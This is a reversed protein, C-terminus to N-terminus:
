LKDVKPAFFNLVVLGGFPLRGNGEFKFGHIYYALMIWFKFSVESRGLTINYFVNSSGALLPQYVYHSQWHMMKQIRQEQDHAVLYRHHNITSPEASVRARSFM